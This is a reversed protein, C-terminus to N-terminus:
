QKARASGLISKENANTSRPMGLTSEGSAGQGDSYQAAVRPQSTEMSPGGRVTDNFINQVNEFHIKGSSFAQRELDNVTFGAQEALADIASQHRQVSTALHRM